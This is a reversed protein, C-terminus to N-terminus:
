PHKGLAIYGGNFQYNSENHLMNKDRYSHQLLASPVFLVLAKLNIDLPHLNAGKM